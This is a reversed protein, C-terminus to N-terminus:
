WGLRREDIPLLLLWRKIVRSRVRIVTIDGGSAIDIIRRILLLGRLLLLRPRPPLQQKRQGHDDKTPDGLVSDDNNM